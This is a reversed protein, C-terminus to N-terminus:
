SIIAEGLGLKKTTRPELLRKGILETLSKYVRAM